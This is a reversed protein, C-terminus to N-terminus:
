RGAKACIRKVEDPTYGAQELRDRDFRTVDQGPRVFVDVVDQLTRCQWCHLVAGIKTPSFDSREHSCALRKTLNVTLPGPDACSTRGTTNM